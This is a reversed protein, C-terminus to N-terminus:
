ELSLDLLLLHLSSVPVEDRHDGHELSMVSARDHSITWYMGSSSEQLISHFHEVFSDLGLFM